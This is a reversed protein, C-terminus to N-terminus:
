KGLQLTTERREEGAYYPIIFRGSNMREDVNGDKKRPKYVILGQVSSGAAVYVQSDMVKRDYDGERKAQNNIASAMVIPKMWGFTATTAIKGRSEYGRAVDAGSVQVWSCDGNIFEIGGMPIRIREGARNDFVFVFPAFGKGNVNEGFIMENEPKTDIPEVHVKLERDGTSYSMQEPLFRPMPKPSYCGSSGVFIALGAAAGVLSHLNRM